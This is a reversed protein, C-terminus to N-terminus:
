IRSKTESKSENILFAARTLRWSKLIIINEYIIVKSFM